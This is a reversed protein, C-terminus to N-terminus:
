AFIVFTKFYNKYSKAPIKNLDLNLFPIDLYNDSKSGNAKTDAFLMFELQFSFFLYHKRSNKHAPRNLDFYVYELKSDKVGFSIDYGNFHKGNCHYMMGDFPEFKNGCIPCHEKIILDKFDLVRM